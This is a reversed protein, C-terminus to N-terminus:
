AMVVGESVLLEGDATPDLWAKVSVVATVGAAALLPVTRRCTRSPRSSRPRTWRARGSSANPPHRRGAHDHDGPLAKGEAPDVGAVGDGDIDGASFKDDGAVVARPGDASTVM